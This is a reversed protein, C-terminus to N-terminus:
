SESPIHQLIFKSRYANDGRVHEIPMGDMEPFLTKLRQNLEQARKEVKSRDGFNHQLLGQNGAMDVLAKWALVPNGTNKAAFGAETYNRTAAENSWLARLDNEDALITITLREWNTVPKTSIPAPWKDIDPKDDNGSLVDTIIPILEINAGELFRQDYKEDYMSEFEPAIYNSRELNFLVRDMSFMQKRMDKCEQFCKSTTCHEEIRDIQHLIITHKQRLQQLTIARDWYHMVQDPDDSSYCDELRDKGRLGWAKTNFDMIYKAVEKEFDTVFSM